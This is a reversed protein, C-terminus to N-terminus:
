DSTRNRNFAKLQANGNEGSDSDREKKAILLNYQLEAITRKSHPGRSQALPFKAMKGAETGSELIVKEVGV